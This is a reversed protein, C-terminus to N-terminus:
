FLLILLSCFVFLYWRNLFPLYKMEPNPVFYKAVMRHVLFGKRKNKGLYVRMLLYPSTGGPHLKIIEKTILNRVIGENSVEYNYQEIQHWKIM